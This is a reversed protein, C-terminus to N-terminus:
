KTIKVKAPRIVKHNFLYGRQIIEIVIGSMEGEVEEVAEHLHPDFKENLCEIEEIGEGKLFNLMQAKIGLFGKTWNSEKPLEKEALYINDLIPLFDMLFEEKSIQIYRKIRESEEKKYNLFDARERKWSALYNEKKKAEKEKM